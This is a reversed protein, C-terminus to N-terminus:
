YYTITRERNVVTETLVVSLNKQSWRQVTEKIWNGAQDFEYTAVSKRLHSQRLYDSAQEIRHGAQDYRYRDTRMPAGDSGYFRSEKLRDMPDYHHAGELMLRGQFFRAHYVLNGRVDFLSKEAVGQANVMIEESLLGRRDYFSFAAQTFLGQDTVAVQASPRGQDNLAYRFTKRYAVAGEPDFTEEETLRGSADYRYVYRVAGAQIVPQLEFATLRGDRDFQHTTTLQSYRTVVTQVAGRLDFRDLDHKAITWQPFTLQFCCGLALLFTLPRRLPSLSM